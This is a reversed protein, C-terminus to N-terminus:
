QGGGPSGREPGGERAPMQSGSPFQGTGRGSGPPRAPIEVASIYGDSNKDLRNFVEAPGLFEEKSVRKDGDKDFREMFGDGQSSGTGQSPVVGRGKDGTGPGEPSPASLKEQSPGAAPFPTTQPITETETEAVSAQGLPPSLSVVDDPELGKIIRVMRNNDLGTEVVRPELRGNKVLYVTSRGKVRLVAQVPIYLADKYEEVIIEATCSMGSRLLDNNPSKDLYILTNYIKLDPNLFASQPDPLPAISVVRGTFRKGSLADVTVVVPLGKKVKDLSAEYVGIEANYGSTTPLHILEQREQVITGEALPEVRPGFRHGQDASTAYIVLGDAPAYIKTKEIQTEIKKLKDEQRDNESEKAKLNAEAQVVDAKAKRTTRELSMRFQKVDSELQALSRKHTFNRLLDLDNRALELDLSTKKAALEDAELETQSIYKEAFLKKSWEVRERARTVEEEALTIKAEAEKLQNPYEGEKYKELDQIAFEYSLRALDMDSQAQNKIVELNERAGIFAAEANQVKIEQDIKQDLLNSSDLEILLDGKKVRTGEDVLSIISTKGEVESKVIIKERAQITGTETVSIRLPGRKVTFTPTDSGAGEDGRLSLFGWLVLGALVLIVAILALPRRRIFDHIWNRNEM